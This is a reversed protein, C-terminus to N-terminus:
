FVLHVSALALEQDGQPKRAAEFCQQAGNSSAKIQINIHKIFELVTEGSLSALEAVRRRQQKQVGTTNLEARM